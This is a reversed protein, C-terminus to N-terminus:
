SSTIPLIREMPPFMRATSIRSSSGATLEAPQTRMEGNELVEGPLSSENDPKELGISKQPYEMVLKQVMALPEEPLAARSRSPSVAMRMSM